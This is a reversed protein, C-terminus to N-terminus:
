GDPDLHPLTDGGEESRSQTGEPEPAATLGNPDLHPLTEGESSSEARGLPGLWGVVLDLVTSVWGGDAAPAAAAPLAPLVLAAVVVASAVARRTTRLM